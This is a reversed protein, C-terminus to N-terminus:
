SQPAQYEAMKIMTIRAYNNYGQCPTTDTVDPDKFYYSFSDRKYLHLAVVYPTDDPVELIGDGHYEWTYRDLTNDSYVNDIITQLSTPTTPSSARFLTMYIPSIRPNMTEPSHLMFQYSVRYVGPPLSIQHTSCNLSMSDSHDGLCAFPVVYEGPDSGVERCTECTDYSIYATAYAPEFWETPGTEGIDGVAGMEGRPGRPGTAGRYGAGGAVLQTSFFVVFCTIILNSVVRM